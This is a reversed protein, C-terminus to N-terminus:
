DLSSRSVLAEGVLWVGKTLTAFGESGWRNVDVLVNEEQRMTAFSHLIAPELGTTRVKEPVFKLCRVKYAWFFWQDVVGYPKGSWSTWDPSHLVSDGLEPPGYLRLTKPIGRVVLAAARKCGLRRLGNHASFVSSINELSELRFTEIPTGDWANMGCSERFYSTKFSKRNNVTFGCFSLVESVFDYCSSDVIIDDGYVGWCSGGQMECASTSLAWFILTELEFTYGNGMSSFKSNQKWLPRRRTGWNTKACRLSDMVRLWQRSARHSFLFQVLRSAVTDSASSLDITALLSSKSGELALRGNWTQDSLDIGCGMLIRRRIMKGVGLQFYVNWGPEVCISRDTLATKSVTTYTNGDVLHNDLPSFAGEVFESQALWRSWVGNAETVLPVLYRCSATSSYKWRYKHYPSVWPRKNLADSGPGWKCSALFEQVNFRGLVDSIKRQASRLVAVLPSDPLNGGMILDLFRANTRACQLEADEAKKLAAIRREKPGLGPLGDFKRLLETAQFAREFSRFSNYWEPEVSLSALQVFESNKALIYCALSRPCNLDEYAQLAVGLWDFKSGMFPDSARPKLKGRLKRSM